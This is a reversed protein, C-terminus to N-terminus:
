VTAEPAIVGKTLMFCGYFRREGSQIICFAQKSKDYFDFRDIRAMTRKRGEAQDIAAQVEQQVPPITDPEGGVEMRHAPFDIFDDLPMISLIAEAAAGATPAAIMLPRGVITSQACAVAPFNADVLMLYDGHGMAALAHLIDPSLYPSLGKLM